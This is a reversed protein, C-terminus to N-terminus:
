FTMLYSIAPHLFRVNSFGLASLFARLFEGFNSGWHPLSARKALSWHGQWEKTRTVLM